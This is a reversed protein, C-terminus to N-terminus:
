KRTFMSVMEPAQDNAAPLTYGLRDYIPKAVAIPSHFRVVVLNTGGALHAKIEARWSRFMNDASLVRVGNVSVEAYTDLGQFVIEIRERRLLAADAVFTSRYEWETKEIWQLAKENAGYFPDPIKGDRLLDTHVCGPVLAPMWDGFGAPGKPARFSWPGFAVSAVGAAAPQVVGAAAPQVVAAAAAVPGPGAGAIALAVALAAILRHHNSHPLEAM